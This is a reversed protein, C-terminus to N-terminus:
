YVYALHQFHIRMGGGFSKVSDFHVSIGFRIKMSDFPWVGLTAQM